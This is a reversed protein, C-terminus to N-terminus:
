RSALLLSDRNRPNKKLFTCNDVAKILSGGSQICARLSFYLVCNVADGLSGSTQDDRMPQRSYHISILYNDEFVSLDSLLTAM